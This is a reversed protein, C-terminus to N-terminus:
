LLSCLYTTHTLSRYLLPNRADLIQVIVQSREVVRWLQRWVEINREFPTLGERNQLHAMARRWGLFAEREAVDLEMGSMERRWKPRRPVVVLRKDEETFEGDGDGCGGGEEGTTTPTSLAVFKVNLKEATFLTSALTATAIFEDYSSEETVSKLASTGM